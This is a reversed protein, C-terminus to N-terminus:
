RYGKASICERRLGARIFPGDPAYAFSNLNNLDLPLERVTFGPTLMQIPPADSVPTM